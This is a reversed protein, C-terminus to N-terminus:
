RIKRGAKSTIWLGDMFVRRDRNTIRTAKEMNSATEGAEEKNIGSVIIDSGKIEVKTDAIINARRPIKEGLFNKIIVSKGEVTVTMPFHGSCIKLTYQYGEKVGTILNKIHAAFTNIVRKEKKSDNDAILHITNNESKIIIAPHKLKKETHGKPGKLKVLNNEIHVEVHEPIIIIKELKAAMKTFM